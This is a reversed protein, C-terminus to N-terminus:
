VISKKDIIDVGHWCVDFGEVKVNKIIDVVRCPLLLVTRSRRRCDQLVAIGLHHSCTRRDTGGVAKLM